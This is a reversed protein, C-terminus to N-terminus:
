GFLDVAIVLPQGQAVHHKDTSASQRSKSDGDRTGGSLATGLDALRRSLSVAQLKGDEFLTRYSEADMERRVSILKNMAAQVKALQKIVDALMDKGSASLQVFEIGTGSGGRLARVEGVARFSTANVRLVIEARVGNDIPVTTDIRCGHFSLDLIKGPLFVGDSPLCSIKADGGCAFRASRRRDQDPGDADSSDPRDADTREPM